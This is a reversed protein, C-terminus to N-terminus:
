DSDSNFFGIKAQMTKRALQAKSIASERFRGAKTERSSPGAYTDRSAPTMNTQRGQMAKPKMVTTRRSPRTKPQKPEIKANAFVFNNHVM